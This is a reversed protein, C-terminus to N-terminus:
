RDPTPSMAPGHSTPVGLGERVWTDVIGRVEDAAQQRPDDGCAWRYIARTPGEIDGHGSGPVVVVEPRPVQSTLWTALAGRRNCRSPPACVARVPVGSLRAWSRRILGRPSEVGDVMALTTVEAGRGVLDAAIWAGASAGASHGVVVVPGPALMAALGDAVTSLFSANNTSTPWWLASLAPRLTRAGVAVCRDSLEGLDEPARSFAHVLVVTGLARVVPDSRVIRVQAPPRM